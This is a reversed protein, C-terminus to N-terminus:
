ADNGTDTTYILKVGILRADQTMDDNMDSVDRFVRFYCLEADSPVNAITIDASESSILLINATGLADDQVVVPTGYAQTIVNGNDVAVGQIAWAVGTTVAGATTWYFTAQVNGKDWSNPFAVPFQAHEDAATDFDLSQLDPFGAAIELAAVPACGNSETPTMAAAPIWITQRGTGNLLALSADATAEVLISQWLATPSVTSVSVTSKTELAGTVGNFYLYKDLRDAVNPIVLDAAATPDTDQLKLMRQNIFSELQQLMMVIRDADENLASAFLDGNAQYDVDTRKYELDRRITIVDGASPNVVLTLGGGGTVGEGTLTYDTTLTLIDASDDPDAGSLTQYALIEADAYFEFPITFTEAGGAATYQVIEHTDNVELAM